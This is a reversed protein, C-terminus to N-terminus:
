LEETDWNNGLSECLSKGAADDEEYSCLNYWENGTWSGKYSQLVYNPSRDWNSISISLSSGDLWVQYTFFKTKCHVQDEENCPFSIDLSCAADTGTFNCNETPFGNALVYVDLAQQWTKLSALAEAMRSKEVAKQYQPLAIASLIGIILVVVLLEILTFAKKM